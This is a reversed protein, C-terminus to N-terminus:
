LVEWSSGSWILAMAYGNGLAPGVQVGAANKVTLFNGATGTNKISFARGSDGATLTPLVVDRATGNPNVLQYVTSAASLTVTGTAIVVSAAGLLAAKETATTASNAAATASNAASSAQTTSTQAAQNTQNVASVLDLKRTNVEVLLNETTQTLSQVAQELSM